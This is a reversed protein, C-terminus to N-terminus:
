GKFNYLLLIHSICSMHLLFNFIGTVRRDLFLPLMKIDKRRTKSETHKVFNSDYKQSNKQEKKDVKHVNGM